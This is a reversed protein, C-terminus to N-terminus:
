MMGFRVCRCSVEPDGAPRLLAGQVWEQSWMLELFLLASFQGGDGVLFVSHSYVGGRRFHFGGVRIRFLFGVSGSASVRSWAGVPRLLAGQLESRQLAMGPHHRVSGPGSRHRRVHPRARALHARRDRRRRGGPAAGPRRRPRHAEDVVARPRRSASSASIRHASERQGGAFARRVPPSGHM